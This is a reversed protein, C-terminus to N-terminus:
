SVPFLCGDVDHPVRTRLRAQADLVECDRLLEVTPALFEADSLRDDTAEEDAWVPRREALEPDAAAPDLRLRNEVGVASLARGDVDVLRVDAYPGRV